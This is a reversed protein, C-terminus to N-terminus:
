RTKRAYGLTWSIYESVSKYVTMNMIVHMYM